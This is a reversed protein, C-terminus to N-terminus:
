RCCQRSPRGPPSALVRIVCTLIRTMILVPTVRVFRYEGARQPVAALIATYVWHGAVIRTFQTSSGGRLYHVSRSLVGSFRFTPLEVRGRVM